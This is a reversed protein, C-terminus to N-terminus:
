WTYPATYSPYRYGAYPAGSFYPNGIPVAGGWGCRWAMGLGFGTGYGGWGRRWAMGLGFGPAYRGWGGGWGFWRRGRM